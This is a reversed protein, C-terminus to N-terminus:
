RSPDIRGAPAARPRRMSELLENTRQQEILLRRLCANTNMVLFPLVIWLVVLIMVLVFLVVYVWALAEM